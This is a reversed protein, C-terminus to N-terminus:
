RKGHVIKKGSFFKSLLSYKLTVAESPAQLSATVAGADSMSPTAPAPEPYSDIACAVIDPGYTLILKEIAAAANAPGSAFAGIVAMVVQVISYGDSVAVAEAETCSIVDTAIPKVVACSNVTALAFSASIVAILAVVGIKAFGSQTNKSSTQNSAKVAELNLSNLKLDSAAKHLAAREGWGTAGIFIMIPTIVGLIKTTDVHYGFIAAGAAIATLLAVVFPNSEFLTKIKQLM